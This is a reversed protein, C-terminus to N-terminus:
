LGKHTKAQELFKRWGDKEQAKAIWNVLGLERFGEGCWGDM